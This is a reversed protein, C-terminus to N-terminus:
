RAASRLDIGLVSRSYAAAERLRRQVAETIPHHAGLVRGADALAREYQGIALALKRTSLYALALDSRAVITDPHNTGQVQERDALIREYLRLADKPKKATLYASALCARATITDPHDSEPRGELEALTRKGLAIAEKVRGSERYAETLSARAATTDPHQPGLARTMRAVVDELLATAQEVQGTDLYASALSAHAALTAAHDPGLNHASGTFFREALRVADPQRGAAVYCRTLQECALRTAPDGSGRAQETDHLVAEYVAIADDFRGSLECASGFLDRISVTQPHDPGLRHQSAGLMAQWYAAEPAALGETRMSQGAQLLAPHCQPTWLLGGAMEHLRATCDRLAQATDPAMTGVSWLQGLADAAAQSAQRSEAAPLHHRTIVQIVDHIRVARAASTDNVAVLGARGLNRVAARVQAVEALGGHGGALYGRAAETILVAWPIGHPTLMSILALVRGALGQPASQDALELSLSWAAATAASLDDPAAHALMQLGQALRARYDRCDLGTGAIFAGAMSLGVPGFGLDAALDLMGARQGADLDLDASLYDMAERPSFAGVPVLQPRYAAVAADGRQATVLVRGFAGSDPWLGDVAAPDALDDLVVLWPRDARALWALFDGAVLEAGGDRHREPDLDRMARAYGSLVADRSTATVWVVLEAAGTDRCARALAAAATTKGTGGLWGFGQGSDQAPVLVTTQGVPLNDLSLGSESRPLYPGTV